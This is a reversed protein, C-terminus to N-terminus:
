IREIKVISKAIKDDEKVTEKLTCRIASGQLDASIEM